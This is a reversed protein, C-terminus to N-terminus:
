RVRLLPAHDSQGRYLPYRLWVSETSRTRGHPCPGLALLTVLILTLRSPALTTRSM